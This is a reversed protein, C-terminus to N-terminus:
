VRPFDAAVVSDHAPEGRFFEFLNGKLRRTPEWAVTEKTNLEAVPEM